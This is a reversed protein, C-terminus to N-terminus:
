KNDCTWEFDMVVLYEFPRLPADFAKRTRRKGVVDQVSLMGSSEKTVIQCESEKHTTDHVDPQQRGGSKEGCAQCCMCVLELNKQKLMTRAKIFRYLVLHDM